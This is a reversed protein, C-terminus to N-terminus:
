RLAGRDDANEEVHKPRFIYLLIAKCINDAIMCLWVAKLGLGFVNVCLFTGFIRIGWMSVLNLVFCGTSDGAGQMARSCMSRGVWVM